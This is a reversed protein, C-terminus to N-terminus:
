AMRTRGHGALAAANRGVKEVAAAIDAMDEDDGLFTDHRLHFCESRARRAETLPDSPTTAPRGPRGHPSVRRDIAASDLLPNTDFAQDVLGVDRGLEAALAAAFAPAPCQAALATDLRWVYKHYGRVTGPPSATVPTVFQQAALLRELALVNALRRRHQAPFRELQDLLVAAHFESLVVSDGVVRGVDRLGVHGGGATLDYERGVSRYQQLLANREPDTTVVAGGEGCTLMKNQQFSFIGAAGFGGVPRGDITAGHAQSCDEIVPVGHRGAVESLAAMNVVACNQHVAVVAVPPPRSGSLLRDVAAPSLCLSDREVDVPVPVAGVNVVASGVAAWTLGPVVVHDLPRVGVALLALRLAASGSSVPVCYPVQYLAAFRCAFEYERTPGAPTPNTVSWRGSSLVATLGASTAADVQPWAPWPKSRVPDGGLLALM